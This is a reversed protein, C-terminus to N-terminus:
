GLCVSRNGRVVVEGVIAAQPHVGSALLDALAADARDADVAMLLGGSTQADLALMRRDAGCGFEVRERVYDLNRFAAGPICGEGILEMAGALAPLAAASLRFTVGSADAMSAAHGLLGFGTIDTAGTVGYKRMVEAGIRNLLKMQELARRYCEESVMGM